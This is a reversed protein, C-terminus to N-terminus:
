KLNAKIEPILMTEQQVINIILDMAQSTVGLKKLESAYEMAKTTKASKQNDVLKSHIRMLDDLDYPLTNNNPLSIAIPLMLAITDATDVNRHLFCKKKKVKFTLFTTRTEYSVIKISSPTTTIYLGKSTSLHPLYAKLMDAVNDVTLCKYAVARPNAPNLYTAHWNTIQQNICTVIEAFTM